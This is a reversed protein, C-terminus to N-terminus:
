LNEGNNNKAIERDVAEGNIFRFIEQFEADPLHEIWYKINLDELLNLVDFLNEKSTTENNNM